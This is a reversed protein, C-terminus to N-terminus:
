SERPIRWRLAGDSKLDVYNWREAVAACCGEPRLSRAERGEPESEVRVLM